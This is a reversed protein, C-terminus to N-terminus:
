PTGGSVPLSAELLWGRATPEARLAGGFVRVRDRLGAIGHGGSAAGEPPGGRGDDLVRALVTDGDRRVEVRVQSARSHRMVNTLAEQVVRYLTTSESASVPGPDVELDVRIGTARVQAVLDALDAVGPAEDEETGLVAVFRHMDELAERAAHEVAELARRSTAEDSRERASGAQLTILTLAHATSDHLDRALRTRERQVAHQERRDAEVEAQVEAQIRRDTVVRLVHGGAWAAVIIVVNVVLDAVVLEEVVDYVLAAALVLLVGLVGTRLGAYWGFSALLFLLCLYPTAVPAPGLFPGPVFGVAAVAMSGFPAVRRLAFAPLVLATVVAHGLLSGEVRDATAWLELEALVTLVLGVLADRSLPTLGHWRPRRLRNSGKGRRGGSGSM